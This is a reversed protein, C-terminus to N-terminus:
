VGLYTKIDSISECELLGQVDDSYKMAIKVWENNDPIYLGKNYTIVKPYSKIYETKVDNPTLVFDDEAYYKGVESSGIAPTDDITEVEMPVLGDIEKISENIDTALDITNETIFSIRGM